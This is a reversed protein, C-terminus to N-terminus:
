RGIVKLAILAGAIVVAIGAVQYFRHVNDGWLAKSRESLIRYIVFESQTSGWVLTLLGIAMM